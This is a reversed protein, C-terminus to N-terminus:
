IFLNKTKDIIRHYESSKEMIELDEELTTISKLLELDWIVPKPLKSLNDITLKTYEEIHKELM